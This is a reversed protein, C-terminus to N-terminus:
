IGMKSSFRLSKIYFRSPHGLVHKKRTSISILSTALTISIIGQRLTLFTSYWGSLRIRFFYVLSFFFPEKYFITPPCNINWNKKLFITAQMRANLQSLWSQMVKSWILKAKGAFYKKFTRVIYFNRIIKQVM